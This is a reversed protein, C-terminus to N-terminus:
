IEYLLDVNAIILIIILPSIYKKIKINKFNFKIHKKAYIFSAINNFFNVLSVIIAYIAIDKPRKLFMFISILYLIKIITTKITIFKYNELAENVFEIYFVNGIIQITMLCYLLLAVGSSTLFAYLLYIVCVSLNSIISIIFLNSFLISVKKKDNRIKSIERMGFNYLGFSAFIM